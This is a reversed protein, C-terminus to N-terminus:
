EIKKYTMYLGLATMIVGAAFTASGAFVSDSYVSIGISTIIGAITIIIAAFKRSETQRKISNLEALTERHEEDLAKFQNLLMNFAQKEQPIKEIDVDCIKNIDIGFDCLVGKKANKDIRDIFNSKREKEIKREFEKNSLFLEEDLRIEKLNTLDIGLEEAFIKVEKTRDEIQLALAHMIAAADKLSIDNCYVSPNELQDKSLREISDSVKINTIMYYFISAIAYVDTWDGVQGNSSYQEPAAYSASVMIPCTTKENVKIRQAGFDLVKVKGDKTVIINNPTLDCHIINRSHVLNMTRLINSILNKAINYSLKGNVKIIENLSTGEIFEMIIYGTNNEEFCDFIKVVGPIDNFSKLRNAELLFSRLGRKFFDISNDIIFIENCGIDRAVLNAPYYEKIAINNHTILDIGKYTIGFGGLGIVKKILYREELITNHKLYDNKENYAILSLGEYSSCHPCSEFKDMDYFHGNECRCLKM